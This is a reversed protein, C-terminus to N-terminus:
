AFQVYRSPMTVAALATNLLAPKREHLKHGDHRAHRRPEAARDHEHLEHEAHAALDALPRMRDGHEAAQGFLEAAVHMLGLALGVDRGVM